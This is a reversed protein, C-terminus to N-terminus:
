IKFVARKARRGGEASPTELYVERQTSQTATTYWCGLLECILRAFPLDVRYDPYHIAARRQRGCTPAIAIWRRQWVSTRPWQCADQTPIIDTIIRYISPLCQQHHFAQSATQPPDRAPHMPASKHCVRNKSTLDAWFLPEHHWWKLIQTYITNRVSRLSLTRSVFYYLLNNNPNIAIPKQFKRHWVTTEEASSDWHLTSLVQSDKPTIKVLYMFFVIMRRVLGNGLALNTRM